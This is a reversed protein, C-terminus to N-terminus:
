TSEHAAEESEHHDDPVPRMAVYLSAIIILVNVTAVYGALSPRGLSYAIAPVIALLGIAAGRRPTLFSPTM